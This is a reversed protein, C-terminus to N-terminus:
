NKLNELMTKEEELLQKWLMANQSHAIEQKSKLNAHLTEIWQPNEDFVKSVTELEADSALSLAVILTDQEQRSLSSHSIQDKIRHFQNQM